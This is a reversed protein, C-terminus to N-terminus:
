LKHREQDVIDGGNRLRAALRYLPAKAPELFYRWMFGRRLAGGFRGKFRALSEQKSGPEPDIRAGVFNYERVGANRLHKIVEWHLLNMTGSVPDAVSGGHVYYAAARSFPVIAGGQVVGNAEAVFVAVDDGVYRFERVVSDAHSRLRLRLRNVFGVTSRDFSQRVLDGVISMADPALRVTVGKSAAGRISNRHKSHVADWLLKEDRTLDVVYSGYPAAEAGDPFTRFLSSFTGPVIVDVGMSRASEVVAALFEREEDVGVAALPITETTFRMLRLGGKGVIVFPLVCRRAGDAGRGVLWGHDSSMAKLYGAAAFIPLEPNWAAEERTTKM